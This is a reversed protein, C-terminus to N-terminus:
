ILRHLSIKKHLERITSAPRGRDIYTLDKYFPDLIIAHGNENAWDQLNRNFSHEWSIVEIAFGKERLYKLVPLFGEGTDCGAGDGSALVVVGPPSHRPLLRLMELQIREDVNQESGTSVGRESLHMTIGSADFRQKIGSQNHVLGAAAFGMGWPRGREAFARLNECHLRVRGESFIGDGREAALRSASIAINSFDLFFYVPGSLPSTFRGTRTPMQPQQITYAHTKALIM